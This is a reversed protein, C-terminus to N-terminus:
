ELWKGCARVAKEVRDRFGDPVHYFFYMPPMTATSSFDIGFYGAQPLNHTQKLHVILVGPEFHSWSCYNM